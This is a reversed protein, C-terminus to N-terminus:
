TADKMKNPVCISCYLDEFYNCSTNCRDISIIFPYCYLKSSTENDNIKFQCIKVGNDYLFSNTANFHVSLCSKKRSKNINVFCIDDLEETPEDLIYKKRKDTHRSSVNEVGFTIFNEGWHGM